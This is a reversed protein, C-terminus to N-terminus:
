AISTAGSSSGPSSSSATSEKADIRKSRKEEYHEPGANAFTYNKPGTDVAKRPTATRKIADPPTYEHVIFDSSPQTAPRPPSATADMGQSPGGSTVFAYPLQPPSHSHTHQPQQQMLQMQSPFSMQVNGDANVMPVGNAFQLPAGPPPGSAVVNAQQNPAFTVNPMHFQQDPVMGNGYPQQHSMTMAQLQQPLPAHTQAAQQHVHQQPTAFINAPFCSQGAPASQPPTNETIVNSGVRHPIFHQQYWMPTHPPSVHPPPVSSSSYYPLGQELDTESISPQRGVHGYSTQSTSVERSQDPASPSMPTPPALTGHSVHRVLHPSNIADTFNWNLPSRQASGPVSKMVRGQAVGGNLVNTSVIRRISQGQPMNHQQQSHGPSGPQSAGSYSQSRLSALGLNAPKARQRRAAINAPPAPSKFVGPQDPHPTHIGVSGMSQALLSTQSNRRVFAEDAPWALPQEYTQLHQSSPRHAGQAAAQQFEGKMANVDVPVSKGPQWQSTTSLPQQQSLHAANNELQAASLSSSRSDAWDSSGVSISAQNQMVTSSPFMPFSHESLNSPVTSDNSSLPAGAPYPFSKVDQKNQFNPFIQNLTDQDGDFGAHFPEFNGAGNVMGGNQVFADFQEQTLTRRNFDLPSDFMDQSAQQPWTFTQMQETDNNFPLGHPQSQNQSQHMQSIGLGNTAQEEGYWQQMMASYQSSPQYPSPESDSGFNQTNPYLNM